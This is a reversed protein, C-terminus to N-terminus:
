YFAVQLDKKPNCMIRKTNDVARISSFKDFYITTQIIGDDFVGMELMKQFKTQHKRFLIFMAADHNSLEITQTTEAM